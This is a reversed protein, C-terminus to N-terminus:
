IRSVCPSCHTSRRELIDDHPPSEGWGLMVCLSMSPYRILISGSRSLARPVIQHILSLLWLPINSHSPKLCLFEGVSIGQTPISITLYHAIPSFSPHRSHSFSPCTTRPFSSHTCTNPWWLRHSLWTLRKLVRHWVLPWPPTNIM